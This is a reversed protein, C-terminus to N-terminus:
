KIGLLGRIVMIIVYYINRSTHYRWQKLCKGLLLFYDHPHWNTFYHAISQYAPQPEWHTHNMRCQFLFTHRKRYISRNGLRPNSLGSSIGLVKQSQLFLRLSQFLLWNGHFTFSIVNRSFVVVSSWNDTASRSLQGAWRYMTNIRIPSTNRKIMRDVKETDKYVHIESRLIMDVTGSAFEWLINLQNVSQTTVEGTLCENGQM